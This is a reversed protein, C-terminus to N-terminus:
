WLELRHSSDCCGAWLRGAPTTSLCPLCESARHGTRQASSYGSRQYADSATWPQNSEDLLTRTMGLNLGDGNDALKDASNLVAAKMVM